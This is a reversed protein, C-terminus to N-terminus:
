RRPRGTRRRRRRSRRRRARPRRPRRGGDLAAPDADLRQGPMGPCWRRWGSGSRRRRRGPPRGSWRGPGCRPGRAQAADAGEGGGVAPEAVAGAAELLVGLAEDDERRVKWSAARRGRRARATRRAPRRGRRRSRPARAAASTRSATSPRRRPLAITSSGASWSVQLVPDNKVLGITGATSTGSPAGAQGCGSPRTLVLAAQSISCAPSRWPSRCRGPAAHGRPVRQRQGVAPPAVM